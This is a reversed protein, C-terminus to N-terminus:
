AQDLTNLEILRVLDTLTSNVPTPTRSAAGLRVIAGNIAEIETARGHRRDQLMSAEHGPHGSLADGVSRRIGAADLAIGQAAAVAVTEAIVTEAIGLGPPNNMQGNNSQTIMALANLAANFTLKTWVVKSIDCSVESQFGSQRLLDAVAPADSHALTTLGGLSVDAFGHTSVKNPHVMDAPVHATGILTRDEGFTAALIEGTGMGNQLTLAITKDNALHSISAVAATSHMSKSFLLVLDFTGSLEHAQAVAPHLTRTGREDTLELGYDAIAKLRAADVDVLTVNAGCEVMRAAFLCGMAGAGIIVVSEIRKM